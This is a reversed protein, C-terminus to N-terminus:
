KEARQSQLWNFRRESTSAVRESYPPNSAWGAEALTGFGNNVEVAANKYLVPKASTMVGSISFTETLLLPNGIGPHVLHMVGDLTAIATPGSTEYPHVYPQRQGTADPWASFHLVPFASPFWTDVTTSDQPGGYPNSKVTV